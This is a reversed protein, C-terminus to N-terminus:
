VPATYMKNFNRVLLFLWGFSLMLATATVMPSIDRGFFYLMGLILLSALAKSSRYIFVDIIAKAKFKEQVNLPIYLMEKVISFLSYDMSKMGAFAILMVPFIPCILLMTLLAALFGPVFLHSGRLGLWRIFLFVGVFQLLLSTGNVVGFFIGLFQTRQDLNTIHERVMVSFNFDMLTAIVQMAAVIGLIMQLFRSQFILTWGGSLDQSSPRIDQSGEIGSRVQIALHYFIAILSFFPLTVYLIQHSGYAVAFGGLIGSAVVSGLGGIGFIVGYLLKARGLDITAHIVAWLQQFMLMIYVDKWLYFLFSIVPYTPMWLAAVTNILSGLIITVLLMPFCGIKFLFRNYAWVTLLGTPITCLWAIPQLHAGYDDLFFSISVAKTICAEGTILFSLIMAYFIFLKRPRDLSSYLSTLENWLSRM